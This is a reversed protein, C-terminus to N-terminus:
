RKIRDTISYVFYEQWQLGARTKFETEAVNLYVEEDRVKAKFYHFRKINDKRVKSLEGTQEYTSQELIKDLDKLDEKMLGKSRKFTDSYLHKNGDKRFGVSRQTGNLEKVVKTKLLPEMERMYHKREIAAQTKTRDDACQQIIPCAACLENNPVKALRMNKTCTSCKAITYSNHKPFLSKQKGPNFRFMKGSKTNTAHAAEQMAQQSDSLPYKSARVKQAKCRCNWGNPPYFLDWFPDSVPLTTGDLKAHEERVKNDGATRYQLVYRGGDDNQADEWAAAANASNVVLDYETRLYNHNYTENVKKVDNLYQNFPKINGNEDLLMASAEKM